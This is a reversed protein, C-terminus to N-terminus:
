LDISPPLVRAFSSRKVAEFGKGGRSAITQRATFEMQKGGTTEVILVANNGRVLAGGLCADDDALKIGIVGKGPGALINIEEVPFHLVHGDSSVLIVSKEDRQLQVHVVKDGEGLRAFQRGRVTSETRFPALSLRLTMGQATVVVLYPGPPEGNRARG